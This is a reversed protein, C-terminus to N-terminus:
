APGVYCEDEVHPLAAANSAGLVGPGVRLPQLRGEGPRSDAVAMM